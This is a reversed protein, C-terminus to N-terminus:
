HAPANAAEKEMMRKYAPRSQIRALYAELAPTKAMINRMVLLALAGGVIIDAASFKDGLLYPGKELSKSIYAEVEDFPGWSVTGPKYSANNNKAVVSPEIIDSVYFIWSLYPGRKADGIKPALGAESFLDALYIAIAGTEFMTAGDHDLAPIKLHPHINRYSEPAAEGTGNSRRIPVIKVDYPAGIEEPLWMIRSGRSRPSHYLTLM